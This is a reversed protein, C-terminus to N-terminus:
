NKNAAKQGVLLTSHSYFTNIHANLLFLHLESAKKSMPAQNTAMCGATSDFSSAISEKMSYKGEQAARMQRQTFTTTAMTQTAEDDDDNTRMM